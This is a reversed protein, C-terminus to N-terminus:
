RLNTNPPSLSATKPKWSQTQTQTQTQTKIKKNNNKKKHFANNKLNTIQHFPM